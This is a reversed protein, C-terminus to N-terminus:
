SKQHRIVLCFIISTQLNQQEKNELIICELLRMNNLILNTWLILAFPLFGMTNPLKQQTVFWGWIYNNVVVVFM